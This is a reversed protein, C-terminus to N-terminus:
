SNDTHIFGPKNKPPLFTRNQKKCPYVQIWQAALDQVEVAYRHHLRWEYEGNLIKHDATITNGAATTHPIRDERSAPNNRCPARTIKILKCTDCNPQM